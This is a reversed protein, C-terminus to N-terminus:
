PHASQKTEEKPEFDPCNNSFLVEDPIWEPYAKCSATRAQLHKCKNCLKVANKPIFNDLAM